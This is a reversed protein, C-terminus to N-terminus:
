AKIIYVGIAHNPVPVWVVGLVSFDERKLALSFMDHKAFGLM